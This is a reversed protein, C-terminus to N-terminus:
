AEVDNSKEVQAESAKYKLYSDFGKAALTGLANIGAVAVSPAQISQSIPPKSRSGFYIAVGVGGVLVVAVIIGTATSM